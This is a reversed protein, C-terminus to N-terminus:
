GRRRNASSKKATSAGYSKRAARECAVRKRKQRERKCLSLAKALKQRRTLAAPKPTTPKPSQSVKEGLVEHQASVSEASSTAESAPSEFPSNIPSEARCEEETTCPPQAGAPAPLCRSSPECVRADYVDYSEDSDEQVLRSATVFFVDDGNESADIFASENVDSGSSILGICGGASECSGVGEPEYEYVKAADGTAAPVLHDPSNFFLRGENSLYRSQYLAYQAHNISTWGPIDGALWHDLGENASAWIEPRDIVLSAGVQGGEATAGVDDVGHPREGSPNCSACTLRGDGADYLYVEEDAHRGDAENRDLNDYGTLSRDSMFALYNGNPSVRSTMGTLDGGKFSGWDPEDESSLMAVLKPKAWKHLAAEYHRVYLGCTAGPPPEAGCTGRNEAGPAMRGDAVFYVYAGDESAGLVGGGNGENVQVNASEGGEGEPTLDTLQKLTLPEQPSTGGSLEAVYLDPSNEHARSEATLRQTDTFFVRSGNASATQFQAFSADEGSGSSVKDLQLTEHTDTDRVYLHRVSTATDVGSWFVLSGDDSIAHRLIWGEAGGASAEEIPGKAEEPPLPKTQGPLVTVPQIDGGTCLPEEETTCSGKPGWEYIGPAARRSEFIVHSLDPTALGPLNLGEPQGKNNVGGGFPEGGPANLASVLALYGTGNESAEAYDEREAQSAAAALLEPSGDARLYITKEQHGQEAKTLPPSLPPEALHTEPQGPYPQLLALALDSSFIRYEADLGPFLGSAQQNPTTVDQSSWERAGITAIEQTFEPSRNGGVHSGIPGDTLYALANGDESAQIEGGDTTIAEAEAGEKQAPSVLEWARHDPLGNTAAAITFTAESSTVEGEANKAVIRYHYLGSPLELLEPSEVSKDAFGAFGGAVLQEPTATCPTAPSCNGSGAGYEFHYHTEAGEPDVQARLTTADLATPCGPGGALTCVSLAGVTPAGRPELEFIDVRDNEADSVYLAGTKSDM